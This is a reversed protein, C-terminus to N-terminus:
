EGCFFYGVQGIILVPHTHPDSEQLVPNFLINMKVHILVCIPSILFAEDSAYM